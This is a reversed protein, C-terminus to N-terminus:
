KGFMRRLRGIACTLNDPTLAFNFRVFGRGDEGHDLGNNVRIGAGELFALGLKEAKIGTQRCDAWLLFSAEPQYPVIPFGEQVCANVFRDKNKQLQETAEKLWEDAEGSLVSTVGVISYANYAYSFSYSEMCRDWQAKKDPNAIMVIAHPLGMMNFGKSVSFVQVAIERAAKSVSLVPTHQHGEYTILSHVEDSIVTVGHARCIDMMKKLEEKAFVRGTPNHPNVMLFIEPHLRQIKEEFDALNLEFRGNKIEMPNTILTYGSGEVARKLPNFYPSQMIVKGGPKGYLDLAIRISGITGPVSSMWDRQVRFDYKRQYWGCVAEFYEPLIGRYNFTNEEWIQKVAERLCPPCSFDMDATDMGIIDNRNDPQQWRYSGNLRHDLARDFDYKMALM